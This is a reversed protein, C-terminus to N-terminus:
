DDDSSSTGAPELEEEEEDDPEKRAPKPHPQGGGECSRGGVLQAPEERVPAIFTEWSAAARLADQLPVGKAVMENVRAKAEPTLRRAPVVQPPDDGPARPRAAAAPAKKPAPAAPKEDEDEDEDEDSKEAEVVPPAKARATKRPASEKSSSKKGKSSTTKSAVSRGGPM